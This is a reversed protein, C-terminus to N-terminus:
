ASVRLRTAGDSLDQYLAITAAAMRDAGFYRRVRERARQAMLQRQVPERALRVLAHAFAAPAGPEVLLASEEHATIETLPAVRSAVIPKGAAMAEVMVQGFGESCTAFAFVDLAALFAGVDSQFGVLSVRDDVKSDRIYRRLEVGYGWPDHGAILLQANAVQRLIEPMAQILVQHGKRPELRGISGIVFRGDLRWSQRLDIRAGSLRETDIGYHIVAAREPPLGAGILWDRVAHSICLIRDARRWLRHMLPLSWRASWDVSYVAHVSSVWVISPRRFKVFAGAMDARPLHTHLIDPQEAAVLRMIRGFFRSDYRGAAGLDAVRIGSAEFDRRLSRSGVVRERLCAVVPEVGRDRLHRCLTLLHL